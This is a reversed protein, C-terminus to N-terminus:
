VGPLMHERRTARTQVAIAFVAAMGSMATSVHITGHGARWRDGLYVRHEM